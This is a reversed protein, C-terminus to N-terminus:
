FHSTPPQLNIAFINYNTSSTVLSQEHTLYFMEMHTLSIRLHASGDALAGLVGGEWRLEVDHRSRAKEAWLKLERNVLTLLEQRSFPLFYVIENIRGLFEDRGFHKKLIPRVVGDKFHRSVELTEEADQADEADGGEPPPPSPPSPKNEVKEALPLFRNSCSCLARRPQSRPSLPASTGKPMDALQPRTRQAARVEAERRLQLGYQAIEDSALNSTM